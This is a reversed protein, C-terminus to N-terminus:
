SEDAEEGSGGTQQFFNSQPPLNAEEEIREPSVGVFYETEDFVGDDLSVRIERNYISTDEQVTFRIVYDQTLFKEITQYVSGLDESTESRLFKGGTAECIQSLYGSDAFDFGVAYVVIGKQTLQNIVSPMAASSESSDAGDSLLIIIRNGSRDELAEMGKLLGQSINTGGAAEIADVSRQVVGTSETVPCLIQATDDFQVLGTSIGSGATQIFSTVARQAQELNYGAMSGSHDVVLCVQPKADEQSTDVLEFDSIETGQETVHFDEKQYREQNEKQWSLNVTVSIEPFNSTDVKGIHIGARIEQLAELIFQSFAVTQVTEEGDEGEVTESYTVDGQSTYQTMAQLLNQVALNPDNNLPQAETGEEGETTEGMQEVSTGKLSNDYAELLDAFELSLYGTSEGSSADTFVENLYERAKEMDGSRFYLQALTLNYALRDEETPNYALIYNVARRVPVSDMEQYLKEVDKELDSIQKELQKKEQENAANQSNIKEQLERIEENKKETQEQLASQETDIINGFADTERVYGSAAMQALAARAPFSPDQLASQELLEFAEEPDGQAMAAQASAKLSLPDSEGALNELDESLSEYQGTSVQMQINVISEAKEREGESLSIEAKIQKQLLLLDSRVNEGEAGRRCLEALNELQSDGFNGNYRTAAQEGQTYKGELALSLVALRASQANASRSYASEATMRAPGYSELEMLRCAVYNERTTLRGSNSANVATVIGAVLGCVIAISPLIKWLFLSKKRIFGILLLVAGGLFLLVGVGVVIWQMLTM